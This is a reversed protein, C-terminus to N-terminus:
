FQNLWKKAATETVFIDISYNKLKMLKEALLIFATNKPNTNIVAHRVEDFKTLHNEIRELIQEFKTRTFDTIANRSDELIRLKRPLSNDNGWFDIAKFMDNIDVNMSVTVYLINENRNFYNKVM